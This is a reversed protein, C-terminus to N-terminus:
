ASVDRGEMLLAKQIETRRRLVRNEEKLQGVILQLEIIKEELTSIEITRQGVQKELDKAKRRFFAGGIERQARRWNDGM